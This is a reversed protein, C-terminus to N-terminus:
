AGSSGALRSSKVQKNSLRPFRLLFDADPTVVRHIPSPFTQVLPQITSQHAPQDTSINTSEDSLSLSAFDPL